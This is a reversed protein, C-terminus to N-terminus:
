LTKPFRALLEERSLASLQLALAAFEEPSLAMLPNVVGALEEDMSEFRARLLNEVITQRERQTGREEGQQIGQQIGEQIGEQRFQEKKQQYLPLLRMALEKDETNQNQRFKLNEQLNLFLELAQTRFPNDAPLAELERVAQKQVRGRGLLRLWLTEPNSPLQHIVVIRTKLTKPLFYIGAPWDEQPPSAGLDTLLPKSATPTLIWLLPLAAPPLKTKTRRSRRQLDGRVELAKLLCDCIEGTSAANRFPELIVTTQVMRGLLGLSQLDSASVRPVFWVDIERTEGSVRMSTEVEGYSSLLEEILEKAFQDHILRTM